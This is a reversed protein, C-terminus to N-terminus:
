AHDAYEDVIEERAAAVADAVEEEDVRQRLEDLRGHLEDDSVPKQEARALLQEVRLAAIAPENNLEILHRRVSEKIFESKNTYVGTEELFQELERDLEEPFKVSVNAYKM